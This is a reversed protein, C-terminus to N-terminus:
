LCVSAFNSRFKTTPTTVRNQIAYWSSMHFLRPVSKIHYFVIFLTQCCQQAVDYHNQCHLIVHDAFRHLHNKPIKQGSTKRCSSMEYNSVCEEASKPFSQQFINQLQNNKLSFSFRWFVMGLIYKWGEEKTYKNRIFIEM